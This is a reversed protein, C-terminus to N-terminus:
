SQFYEFTRSHFFISTLTEVIGVFYPSFITQLTSSAELARTSKSSKPNKQVVFLIKSFASLLFFQNIRTVQGVPEPLVVVKYVIM